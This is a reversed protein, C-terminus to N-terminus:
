WLAAQDNSSRVRFINGITMNSWIVWQTNRTGIYRCVVLRLTRKIGFIFLLRVICVFCIVVFCTKVFVRRTCHLWFQRQICDTILSSLYAFRSQLWLIDIIDNSVFHIFSSYHFNLWFKILTFACQRLRHSM